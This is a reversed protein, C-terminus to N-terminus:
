SSSEAITQLRMTVAHIAGSEIQSNLLKYITQQRRVPNLGEFVDGVISIQFKGNGGEVDIDCNPLESAILKKIDDPSL